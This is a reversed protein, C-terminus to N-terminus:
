LQYDDDFVALLSEPQNEDAVSSQMMSQARAISADSSVPHLLLFAAKKALSSPHELDLQLDVLGIVIGAPLETFPFRQNRGSIRLVVYDPGGEVFSVPTSRGVTFSEAAGLGDVAARLAAQCDQALSAITKLRVYQAQQEKTLAQEQLAEMQQNAAEYDQNGLSERWELMATRWQSKQQDTLEPEKKPPSSSPMPPDNRPMTDSPPSDPQNANEQDGTMAGGTKAPQDELPTNNRLAAEQEDTLGQVSPLGSGRQPDAAPADAPQPPQVAPAAATVDKPKPAPEKGMNLVFFLSAMVAALTGLIGMLGMLMSRDRKRRLKRAISGAPKAAATGGSTVLRAPAVQAQEIKRAAAPQKSAPQAALVPQGASPGTPMPDAVQANVAVPTGTIPAAQPNLNHDSVGGEGRLLSALKNFDADADHDPLQDSHELFEALDFSRLPDGAPLVQNLADWRWDETPQQKSGFATEWQRDYASKRNVDLLHHKGLELLRASRKALEPQSSRQQKTIRLVRRLADEIVKADSELPQLKLLGYLDPLSPKDSSAPSSDVM